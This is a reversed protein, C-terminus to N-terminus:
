KTSVEMSDRQTPKDASLVNDIAANGYPTSTAADIAQFMTWAVERYEERGTTRYMYFVSELAEPRLMYEPDRANRFGKPLNPQDIGDHDDQVALRWATENWACADQSPCQVLNYIEPMIGSPMSSYVWVCGDTLRAATTSHEPLSFVKAGLAFMGGVFCSLHQSETNLYAVEPDVHLEGAILIDLSDPTMPRFLLREKIPAVMARYMAEYKPELGGLLLHMKLVYEYMSDSLAGLSFVGDVTFDGHLLNFFNPWLGPARTQNQSDYMADTVRAIADYYRDDGTLQALRTFELSLTAVSAAPQHDDPRLEGIKAKAFDFWFPPMRNPTDFATYLMDGLETAKELLDRQGSLDYAALLGGLHRITTEFINVSTESTKEWDLRAVARTAKNFDEKLDMIWLTDLNDVLNAAWGGFTDKGNATLPTLEDRMWAYKEYSRWGKLFATKIAERRAENTANHQPLLRFDHQIRPPAIPHGTPLIHHPEPPPYHLPLSRWDFGSKVIKVSSGRRSSPYISYVIIVFLLVSALWRYHRPMLRRLGALDM